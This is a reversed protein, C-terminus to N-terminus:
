IEIANCSSHKPDPPLAPIIKGTKKPIKTPRGHQLLFHSWILHWKLISLFKNCMKNMSDASLVILLENLLSKWYPRVEQQWNFAFHGSCSFLFIGIHGYSFFVDPSFKLQQELKENVSVKHDNKPNSFFEGKLYGDNSCDSLENKITAIITVLGFPQNQRSSTSVCLKEAGREM